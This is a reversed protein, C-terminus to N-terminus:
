AGLVERAKRAGARISAQITKQGFDLTDGLPADPQIIKYEDNGVHEIWWIGIQIGSYAYPHQQVNASNLNIDSWDVSVAMGSERSLILYWGTEVVQAAGTTTLVGVLAIATVVGAWSGKPM